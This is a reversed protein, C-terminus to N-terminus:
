RRPLPPLRRRLPRRRTRRRGRGARRAALQLFASTRRPATATPACDPTPRHPTACCHRTSRLVRGHDRRGRPEVRRRETLPELPPWEPDRGLLTWVHHSDEYERVEVVRDGEIRQIWCYQNNYITGDSGHICTEWEEVVCDGEAIMPGLGHFTPSMTQSHWAKLWEVGTAAHAPMSGALFHREGGAMHQRHDEGGLCLRQTAEHRERVIRKNAEIESM